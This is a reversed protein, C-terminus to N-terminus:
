GQRRQERYRDLFTGIESPSLQAFDKDIERLVHDALRKTYLAPMFGLMTPPTIVIARAGAEADVRCCLRDIARAASAKNSAEHRDNHRVM